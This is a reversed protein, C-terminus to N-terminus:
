RKVSADMKYPCGYRLSHVSSQLLTGAARTSSQRHRTSASERDSVVASPIASARDAMSARANRCPM